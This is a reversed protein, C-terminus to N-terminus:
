ILQILVRRVVCKSMAMKPLFAKSRQVLYDWVIDRCPVCTRLRIFHMVSSNSNWLAAVPAFLVHLDFTQSWQHSWVRVRHKRSIASQSMEPDKLLRFTCACLWHCCIIFVVPPVNKCVHKKEMFMAAPKKPCRIIGTQSCKKFLSLIFM